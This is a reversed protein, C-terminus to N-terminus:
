ESDRGQGGGRADGAELGEPRSAQLDEDVEVVAIGELDRELRQLPALESDTVLEGLIRTLLECIEVGVHANSFTREVEEGVPSARAPLEPRPQALLAKRDCADPGAEVVQFTLTEEVVSRHRRREHAVTEPMTGASSGAEHGLQARFAHFRVEGSVRDVLDELVLLHAVRPQCALGGLTPHAALSGLHHTGEAGRLPGGLAVTRAATEVAVQRPPAEAALRETLRDCVGLPDGPLPSRPAIEARAM